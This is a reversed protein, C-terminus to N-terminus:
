RLNTLRPGVELRATVPPSLDFTSDVISLRTKVDVQPLELIDCGLEVAADRIRDYENTADEFSHQRDATRVYIERWPPALVVRKAYPFGTGLTDGFPVGCLHKLGVAADLLGRDFFVPDTNNSVRELDAKAVAVASWLFAPMDRWPLATGGRAKESRLIRLGPEPVVSRGARSLADILTSKGGGSCGTILIRHHKDHKSDGFIPPASM